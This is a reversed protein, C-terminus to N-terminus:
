IVEKQFYKKIEETYEGNENHSFLPPLIKIGSKGNKVGEILVINAEKYPKPHVFCIRKPQINNNVMENIIDTLREPRHVVAIAGGNNLLKRAIRFLRELDLKIEHRAIQKFESDNLNSQENMKFFPPNCTIADFSGTPIEKYWECVDENIIEIQNNLNNIEISEKALNFVEKQIEIGIIKANTRTSMIIPGPANGCGIDLINKTKKNITLFNPLLVSDLSFNFMNPDQMIYLDEYGLLYNKVKAM